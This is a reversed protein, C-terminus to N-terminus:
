DTKRRASITKRPSTNVMQDPSDRLINQAIYCCEILRHGRRLLKALKQRRLPLLKRALSLDNEFFNEGVVLVEVSILQHQPKRSAVVALLNTSRGHIARKTCHFFSAQQPLNSTRVAALDPLMVVAVRLMVMHDAILAAFEELKVVFLNGTQDFLDGTRLAKQFRAVTQFDVTGAVGAASRLLTTVALEVQNSRLLRCNQRLVKYALQCFASSMAAPTSQRPEHLM